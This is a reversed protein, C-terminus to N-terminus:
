GRCTLLEFSNGLGMEEYYDPMVEDFAPLNATAEETNRVGPGNVAQSSEIASLLSNLCIYLFRNATQMYHLRNAELQNILWHLDRGSSLAVREAIIMAIATDGCVLCAPHHNGSARRITVRETEVEILVRKKMM